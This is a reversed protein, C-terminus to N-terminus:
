AQSVMQVKQKLANIIPIISVGYFQMALTDGQTTGETSM